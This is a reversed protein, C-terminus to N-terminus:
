FMLYQIPLKIRIMMTASYSVDDPDILFRVVRFSFAKRKGTKNKPARGRTRKQQKEESSGTKSDADKKGKDLSKRGRPKKETEGQTAKAKAAKLSESKKDSLLIETFLM